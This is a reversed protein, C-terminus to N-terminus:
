TASAPASASAPRWNRSTAAATPPWTACATWSRATDRASSAATRCRSRPNTWSPPSWSTACRTARTWRRASSASSPPSAAASLANALEPVRELTGRLAAMDRPGAAGTAARSVLRPLDAIGRMAASADHRLIASAHFEEVADQRARIPGVDLLPHEVWQRLLRAGGPTSTRDLVQLLSQGSTGWQTATLELNRRATADLFLFQDTSYTALGRLHDRAKLQNAALYDLIASAAEQALPMDECGFGRLSAVGFHECLKQHPSRHDVRAEVTEVRGRAMSRVEEALLFDHLLLIEAPQLRQVEDLLAKRPDAGRLETVLFEGTSVDAVALGFHEGGQAVAALFNNAHGPLLGEEVVTGPTVVRTVQRRVIGKAKKPDEMQDAIAVRFGAAILKAIYRDAAHYPVGCLPIRQDKAVPRSTLTIQLVPAAREADEGMMEYFDGLRLMVLADPYQQKIANYQAMM